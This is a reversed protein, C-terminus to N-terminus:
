RRLRRQSRGPRPDEAIGKTIKVRLPPSTLVGFADAYRFGGPMCNRTDLMASIDPVGNTMIVCLNMKVELTYSGKNTISFMDDVRFLRRSEAANSSVVYGVYKRTLILEYKTPKRPTATYALGAKTKPIEKGNEDFLHFDFNGAPFHRYWILNTITGVLYWHLEDHSKFENTPFSDNDRSWVYFLLNSTVLVSNTPQPRYAEVIELFEERTYEPPGALATLTPLICALILCSRKM